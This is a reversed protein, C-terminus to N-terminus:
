AQAHGIHYVSEAQSLERRYRSHIMSIHSLDQHDECLVAMSRSTGVRSRLRRHFVGGSLESLVRGFGGTRGGNGVRIFFGLLCNGLIRYEM